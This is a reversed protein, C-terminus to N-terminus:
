PGTVKEKRELLNGKEQRGAQDRKRQVQRVNQHRFRPSFIWRLQTPEELSGVELPGRGQVKSLFQSSSRNSVRWKGQQVSMWVGAWKEDM